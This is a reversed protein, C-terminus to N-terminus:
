DKELALSARLNSLRVSAILITSAEKAIASNLEGIVLTKKDILKSKTDNIIKEEDTTMTDYPKGSLQYILKIILSNEPLYKFDIGVGDLRAKAANLKSLKESAKSIEGQVQSIQANIEARSM